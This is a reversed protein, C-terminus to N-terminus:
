VQLQRWKIGNKTEDRVPFVVEMDKGNNAEDDDSINGLLKNLFKDGVTKDLTYVEEDREHEYKMTDSIKSDKDDEEDLEYENDDSIDDVLVENDAWDLIPENQHDIYIWM